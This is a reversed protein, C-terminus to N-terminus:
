VCVSVFVSPWYALCLQIHVYVCFSDSDSRGLFLCADGVCFVVCLMSNFSSWVCCRSLIFIADCGGWGLGVCLFRAIHMVDSLVRGSGTVTDSALRNRPKPIPKTGFGKDDIHQTHREELSVHPSTPPV